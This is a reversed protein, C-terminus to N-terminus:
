GLAIVLGLSVEQPKNEWNGSSDDYVLIDGANPAAIEVNNLDEVNAASIRADARADARADTYYLNTSGEPIDDTDVSTNVWEGNDYVLFDEDQPSVINTDSLDGL